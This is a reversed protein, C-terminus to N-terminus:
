RRSVDKPPTAPQPLTNVLQQNIKHIRQISETTHKLDHVLQDVAALAANRLEEEDLMTALFGKIIETPLEKGENQPQGNIEKMRQDLEATADAVMKTQLVVDDKKAGLDEDAVLLGVEMTTLAEGFHSPVMSRIRWNGPQWGQTDGPRLRWNPALIAQEDRVATVKFEGALQSSGDQNKQFAWVVQKDQLGRTTGVQIQLTGIASDVIQTAVDDWDRDWDLMLRTLDDRKLKLEATRKAIEEQNKLFEDELKQNQTMWANRTALLRTTLVVAGISGLVVLWLCIKGFINM